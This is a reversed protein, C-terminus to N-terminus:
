SGVTRFTTATGHDGLGTLVQLKKIPKTGASKFRPMATWNTLADLMNAEPGFTTAGAKVTFAANFNTGKHGAKRGKGTILGDKGTEYSLTTTASTVPIDFIRETATVSLSVTKTSKATRSAAVTTSTFTVDRNYRVTKTKAKSPIDGTQTVGFAKFVRANQLYGVFARQKPTPLRSFAKLTPGGGPARKLWTKYADVTLQSPAAPKATAHDHAVAQGAGGALAVSAATALALATVRNRV